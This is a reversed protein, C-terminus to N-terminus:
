HCLYGSSAHRFLFYSIIVHCKHQYETTSACTFQHSLIYENFFFFCFFLSPYSIHDYPIWNLAEYIFIIFSVGMTLKGNDTQLWSVRYCCSLQTRRQPQIICGLRRPEFHCPSRTKIDEVGKLSFLTLRQFTQYVLTNGFSTSMAAM